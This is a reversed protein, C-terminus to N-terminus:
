LRVQLFYWCLFTAVTVASGAYIYFMGWEFTLGTWGILAGASVLSSMYTLAVVLGGLSRGGVYYDEVTVTKKNAYVGVFFMGVFYLAIIAIIM